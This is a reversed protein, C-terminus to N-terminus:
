YIDVVVVLDLVKDNESIYKKFKEQNIVAVSKSIEKYWEFYKKDHNKTVKSM